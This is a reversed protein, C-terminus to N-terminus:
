YRTRTMSSSEQGQLASYQHCLMLIQVASIRERIFTILKLENFYQPAQILAVVGLGLIVALTLSISEWWFCTPYKDFEDELMNAPHYFGRPVLQLLVCYDKTDNFVSTSVCPILGTSCAWWRGLGPVLYRTDPTKPSKLTENCLRLLIGDIILGGFVLRRVPLTTLLGLYQLEPLEPAWKMYSAHIWASICVEKLQEWIQRRVVELAKLHPFYLDLFFLMLIICEVRSLSCHRDEVYSRMHSLNLDGQPIGFGSCPLPFSPQGTM